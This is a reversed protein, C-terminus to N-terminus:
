RILTISGHEVSTNSNGNQDAATYEIRYVYVGPNAERGNSTGDWSDLADDTAFLLSGWRDYIEMRFAQIECNAYIEFEDNRGDANPTFINPIYPTCTCNEKTVEIYQTLGGCQNTMEVSYTGAYTILFTTDTIENQDYFASEGTWLYSEATPQYANIVLIVDECITTDTPLTPQLSNLIDVSISDSAPCNNADLIDVAYTGEVFIEM